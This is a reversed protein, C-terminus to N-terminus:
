GLRLHLYVECNLHLREGLRGERMVVSRWSKQPSGLTAPTGFDWIGTNGDNDVISLTLNWKVCSTFQPVPRQVVNIPELAFLFLELSLFCLRSMHVIRYIAM